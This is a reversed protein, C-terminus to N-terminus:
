KARASAVRSSFEALARSMAAPIASVECASTAAEAKVTEYGRTLSGAAGGRRLSWAARLTVACNADAIFEEIDVLLQDPEGASSPVRSQLDAALTRQIMEGLPAAWRDEEALQLRTAETRRVIEPRDIEGPLTVRVVRIAAPANPAAGDNGMPALTYFRMPVSSSACSALWGATALLVGM